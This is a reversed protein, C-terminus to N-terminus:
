LNSGYSPFSFIYHVGAMSIPYHIHLTNFWLPESNISLSQVSCGDDLYKSLRKIARFPSQNFFFFFCKMGGILFIETFTIKLSNWIMGKKRLSFFFSLDELACTCAVACCHAWSLSIKRKRKSIRSRNINSSNKELTNDMKFSFFYNNLVWWKIHGFIWPYLTNHDEFLVKMQKM